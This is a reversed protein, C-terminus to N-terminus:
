MQGCSLACEGLGCGADEAVKFSWGAGGVTDRYIIICFAHDWRFSCSAHDNALESGHDSDGGGDSDGRADNGGSGSGRGGRPRPVAVTRRPRGDIRRRRAAGTGAGDGVRGDRLRPVVPVVVVAVGVSTVVSRIPICRRMGM